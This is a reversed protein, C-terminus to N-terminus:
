HSSIFEKGGAIRSETIMIEKYRSWTMTGEPQRAMIRIVREQLLANAFISELYSAEFDHKKSMYKIFDGVDERSSYDTYIVQFSSFILSFIIVVKKLNM